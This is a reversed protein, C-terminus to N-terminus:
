GFGGFNGLANQLGSSQISNQLGGLNDGLQGQLGGLQDGLQGQLDGLQGTLADTDINGAIDSMKDKISPLQDKLQDTINDLAGGAFASDLLNGGVKSGRFVLGGFTVDRPALNGTLANTNLTPTDLFISNKGTIKVNKKSSLELTDDADVIISRGKIKVDGNKMATVTVDGNRGIINVCAGGEKTVGGTITICDDNILQYQGDETMGLYSSQKNKEAILAYITGGGFGYEPNNTDIRFHPGFSEHDRAAWNQLDQPREAM